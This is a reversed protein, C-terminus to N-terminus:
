SSTLPWSWAGAAKGRPFSGGTGMLLNPPGWLRQPRNLSSFIRSGDPVRVGVGWDDLGYGTAIGVISAPEEIHDTGLNYLSPVLWTMIMSKKIFYPWSNWPVWVRSHSRQRPGPAITFSLGTREVSLAGWMLLGVVTQCLLSRTM